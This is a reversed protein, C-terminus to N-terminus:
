VRLEAGGEDARAARAAGRWERRSVHLNTVLNPPREVGLFNPTVELRLVVDQATLDLIRVSGRRLPYGGSPSAAPSEGEQCYEALWQSVSTLFEESSSDRYRAQRHLAEIHHALRGVLAMSLLQLDDRTQAVSRCSFIAAYNSGRRGVIPLFGSRALWEAWRLPPLRVAGEVSTQQCISFGMRPHVEASISAPWGWTQHALALNAAVPYAPNMPTTEAPHQDAALKLQPNVESADPQCVFLRPMVMYLYAASTERRLQKWGAFRSDQYFAECVGQPDRPGAAGTPIFDLAPSALVPVHARMGLWAMGALLSLDGSEPSFEHDLILVSFPCGGHTGLYEELVKRYLHTETVRATRTLDDALEEATAEFYRVRVSDLGACRAALYSLGSGRPLQLETANGSGLPVDVFRRARFPERGMASGFNGIAGIIFPLERRNQEEGDYAPYTIPFRGPENGPVSM